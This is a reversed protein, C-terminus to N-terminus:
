GELRRNDDRLYSDTARCEGLTINQSNSDNSGTGYSTVEEDGRGIQGPKHVRREVEGRVGDFRYGYGETTTGPVGPM